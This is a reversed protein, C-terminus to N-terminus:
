QSQKYYHKWLKHWAFIEKGAVLYLTLLVIVSLVIRNPIQIDEFYKAYLGFWSIGFVTIIIILPHIRDIKKM